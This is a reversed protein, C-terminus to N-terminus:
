GDFITLIWLVVSSRMLVFTVTSFGISLVVIWHRFFAFRPRQWLTWRSAFNARSSPYKRTIWRLIIFTLESECWCRTRSYVSALVIKESMVLAVLAYRALMRRRLSFPFYIILRKSIWAFAPEFPTKVHWITNRIRRGVSSFPFSVSYIHFERGQNWSSKRIMTLLWAFWKSMSEVATKILSHHSFRASVLPPSPRRTEATSRTDCSLWWRPGGPTRKHRTCGPLPLAELLRVAAEAESAISVRSPPQHQVLWVGGM